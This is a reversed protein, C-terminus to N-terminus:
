KRGICYLRGLTRLYLRGGAIVPSAFGGDALDNEAVREFQRSAKFVVMRGAEDPVFVLGDALIPSASIEGAGLREEWLKEGSRADFCVAVGVDKIALLRDEIVLPSPVYVKVTNQWVVHTATVDGRGDARVCRMGTQPDGGTVFVLDGLWVPTSVTTNSPGECSWLPEGTKPDYSSLRKGGSVLLQDRGALRAVVPSSFSYLNKRPKEWVVKGTARDFAKLASSEGPHDVNVIALPGYLMPSAGYGYRGALPSVEQQWLTKGDLDVATIWVADRNAFLVITRQGDCAPTSTAYSNKQHRRPFGGHHIETRWLQRGSARSYCLLAQAGDGPKPHYVHIGQREKKLEGAEGEATAIFLRDGRICPSAHGRGPVEVQWVVNETKSWATPPAPGAAKGDLTPGRWWPWDDPAVAIGTPSDLAGPEAPAAAALGAVPPLASLVWALRCGPM